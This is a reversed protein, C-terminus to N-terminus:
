PTGRLDAVVRAADELVAVVESATWEHALQDLAEKVAADACREAWPPPHAPCERPDTVYCLCWPPDAWPSAAAPVVRISGLPNPRPCACEDALQGCGGSCAPHHCREPWDDDYSWGSSM